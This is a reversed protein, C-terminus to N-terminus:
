TLSQLDSTHEESRQFNEEDRGLAGGKGPSATEPLDDAGERLRKAPVPQVYAHDHRQVGAHRPMLELRQLADERYRHPEARRVAPHAESSERTAVHRDMKELMMAMERARMEVARRGLRIGVVQLAEREQRSARELQHLREPPDGVHDVGVVPLGGEDRDVDVGDLPCSRQVAAGREVGNVIEGILALVVTARLEDGAESGLVMVGRLELM